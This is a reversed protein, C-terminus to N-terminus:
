GEIAAGEAEGVVAFDEDGGIDVAVGADGVEEEAEVALGKEGRM